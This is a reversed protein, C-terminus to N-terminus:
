LNWTLALGITSANSDNIPACYRASLDFLGFQMGVSPAVALGTITHSESESLLPAKDIYYGLEGSIFYKKAFVFKYGARIPIQFDLAERSIMFGTGVYAFGPGAHVSYRATLGFNVFQTTLVTPSVGMELGIGFSQTVGSKQALVSFSELSLLSALFIFAIKQYKGTVASLPFPM